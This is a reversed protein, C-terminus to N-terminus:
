AFFRTQIVAIRDSLPVTPFAQRLSQLAEADSAPHVVSLFDRMERFANTFRDPDRAAPLVRESAGASDSDPILSFAIHASM